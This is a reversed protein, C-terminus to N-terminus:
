DCCANAQNNLEILRLNEEKILEHQTTLTENLINCIWAPINPAIRYYVWQGRRMDKLLGIGRLTALHRSVKPQSQQLIETLECVCLEGQQHILLVAKLRTLESLAKFLEVPTM